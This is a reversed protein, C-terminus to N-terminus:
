SYKNGQKNMIGKLEANAKLSYASNTSTSEICHYSCSALDFVHFYGKHTVIDVQKFPREKQVKTKGKEKNSKKM